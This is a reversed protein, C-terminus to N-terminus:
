KLVGPLNVNQQVKSTNATVEATCYLLHSQGTRFFFGSSKLHHSKGQAKKKGEKGKTKKKKKQMHIKM